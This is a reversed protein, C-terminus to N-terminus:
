AHRVYKHTVGVNVIPICTLVVLCCVVLYIYEAEAYNMLLENVIVRWSEGM